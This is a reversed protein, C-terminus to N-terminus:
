PQSVGCPPPEFRSGTLTVHQRQLMIIDDNIYALAQPDVAVCRDKYVQILSDRLQAIVLFDLTNQIKDLEEGTLEYEVVHARYEAQTVPLNDTVAGLGGAGTMIALMSYIM